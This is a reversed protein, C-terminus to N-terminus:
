IEMKRPFITLNKKSLKIYYFRHFYFTQLDLFRSNVHTQVFAIHTPTCELTEKIKM